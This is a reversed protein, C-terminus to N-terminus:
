TRTGFIATGVRVLNSGASIAINLDGTMGLSLLGQGVKDAQQRLMTYIEPAETLTDSYRAPPIAMLGMVKLNHCHSAIEEALALVEELAVGNKGEEHEANVAIYVPYPTKGIKAAEREILQAHKLSALTQIESAFHVIKKIKNSQIHGIYSWQIALHALEQAKQELEQAYNEGFLRQGAQYLAAIDASTHRKSVALLQVNQNLPRPAQAIKTLIEQYRHLITSM